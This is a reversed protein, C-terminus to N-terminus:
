LRGLYGRLSLLFKAHYSSPKAKRNSADQLNEIKSLKGVSSTLLQPCVHYRVMNGYPLPLSKVESYQRCFACQGRRIILPSVMAWSYLAPHSPTATLEVKVLSHHCETQKFNAPPHSPFSPPLPQVPPCWQWTSSTTPPAAHGRNSVMICYTSAEERRGNFLLGQQWDNHYSM